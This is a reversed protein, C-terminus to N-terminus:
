FANKVVMKSNYRDDSNVSKLVAISYGKYYLQKLITPLAEATKRQIDHFLIMGKQRKEIQRMTFEVMEAPTRNRWDESDISWYLEAVGRNKLYASLEPSSEGYPFRFFPDAFGLVDYIAQHGRNINAIAEPVSLMRGNNKTCISKAALCKHDTSHSGIVHGQDAVNKLIQPYARVNNGLVLFTAKVNASALAKLIRDTYQPHPGDDFTLIIEKKGVGADITKYGNSVDRTIESDPFKFQLTPATVVPAPAQEINLSMSIKVKEAKWYKDIKNLLEPHCPETLEKHKKIEEEFLALEKGSKALLEICVDVPDAGESEWRKFIEHSNHESAEWETLSRASENAALSASIDSRVQEASPRTCAITLLLVPLSKLLASTTTTVLEGLKLPTLM